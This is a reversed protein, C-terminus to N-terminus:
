TQENKHLKNVFSGIKKYLEASALTSSPKAGAYNSLELKERRELLDKCSKFASCVTLQKIASTSSCSELAWIMSELELRVSNTENFDLITIPLMDLSEDKLAVCEAATLILHCGAGLKLRPDFSSSVFIFFSMDQKTKSKNKM